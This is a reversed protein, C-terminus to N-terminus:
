PDPVLSYNKTNISTTQRGSETQLDLTTSNEDISSHGLKESGQDRIGLGENRAKYIIRIEVAM